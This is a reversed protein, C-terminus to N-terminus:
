ALAAPERVSDMPSPGAAVPQQAAAESGGFHGLLAALEPPTPPPPPPAAPLGGPGRTRVIGYPEWGSGM